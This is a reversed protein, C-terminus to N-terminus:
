QNERFEVKRDYRYGGLAPVNCSYLRSCLGIGIPMFLGM